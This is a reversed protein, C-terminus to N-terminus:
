PAEKLHAMRTVVRQVRRSFEARARRLRSAVTGGPIELAEAIEPLNLEEIEYLTLVERLADPLSLLLQDLQSRQQKQELLEEALPTSDFVEHELPGIGPQEIRASTRRRANAALRVAVGLLFARERGREIGDLKKAAIAFVEQANEEAQACPLGMRRGARWVSDFHNNLMTALRREQEATLSPFNTPDSTGQSVADLARSTELQLADRMVNPTHRIAVPAIM